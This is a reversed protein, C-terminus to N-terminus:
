NQVKYETLEWVAIMENKQYVKNKVFWKVRLSYWREEVVTDDVKKIIKLTLFEGAPVKVKEIGFLTVVPPLRRRPMGSVSSERSTKM